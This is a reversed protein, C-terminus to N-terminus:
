SKNYTRLNKLGLAPGEKAVQGASHAVQWFGQYRHDLMPDRQRGKADEEVLCSIHGSRSPLISDMLGLLLSLTLCMPALTV